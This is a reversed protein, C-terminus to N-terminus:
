TKLNLVEMVKERDSWPIDRDKTRIFKENGKGTILVVDGKSARKILYEIAEGRDEIIKYPKEIGFEMLYKKVGSEISRMIELPDEDYPNVDTIVLENAYTIGIEGLIPRKWKDRIGGDSGILLSLRKPSFINIVLECVEKLSEPTHAYDVIVKIGKSQFIELRGPVNKFEKLPDVAAKLPIGLAKLVALAALTNYLNIKGILSTKFKIKELIFETGKQTYKVKEPRLHQASISPELGFTIKNEAPFTLFYESEPDDTNIISTKKVINGRLYKIEKNKSLARFLKGKYNRYALFGGHHEIHEPHIGLFVAIDFYLGWHRNQMLGESSVEMVGIECGKELAEKLFKHIFGRGPMTNLNNEKVEDLIAFYDSSSLCVKYGLSKLLFYTLYTTTTKGKTGTIGILVIKKSPFGYRLAFFYNILGHYLNILNKPLLLRIKNKLEKFFM